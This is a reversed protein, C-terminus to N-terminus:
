FRYLKLIHDLLSYTLGGKGFKPVQPFKKQWSNETAFKEVFFGYSSSTPTLCTGLWKKKWNVHDRFSYENPGRGGDTFPLTGHIEIIDYRFKSPSLQKGEGGSSGTHTDTNRSTHRNTRIDHATATGFNCWLGSVARKMFITGKRFSM